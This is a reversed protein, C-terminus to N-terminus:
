RRGDWWREFEDLQALADCADYVRALPPPGSRLARFGSICIDDRGKVRFTVSIYPGLPLFARKARSSSPM